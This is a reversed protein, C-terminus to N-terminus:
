NGYSFIIKIIEGDEETRKILTEKGNSSKVRLEDSVFSLGHKDHIETLLAYYNEFGLEIIPVDKDKIYSQIQDLM